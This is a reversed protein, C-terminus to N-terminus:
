EGCLPSNKRLGKAGCRRRTVERGSELRLVLATKGRSGALPLNSPLRPM